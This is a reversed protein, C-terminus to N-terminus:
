WRLSLSCWPLPPFFTLTLLCPSFGDKMMVSSKWESHWLQQSVAWSQTQWCDTMSLPLVRSAWSSGGLSNVVSLNQSLSSENDETTHWQHAWWPGFSLELGVIVCIAKTLSLPGSFLVLPMFTPFSNTPSLNVSITPSLLTPLYYYCPIYLITM